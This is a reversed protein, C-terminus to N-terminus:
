FGTGQDGKFDEAFIPEVEGFTLGLMMHTPTGDEYTSYVSSGTYNVNVSKLACYKFKNLFPHARGKHMYTLEFIDPASLFFDGKSELKPASHKKLMLIMRRVQEAEEPSSPIIPFMFSFERLTPGDFLLEKNPNISKGAGRALLQKIDMSGGTISTVAKAASYSSALDRAAQSDKLFANKAYGMSTAIAELAETIGASQIVDKGGGVAIAEITNLDSESWNATNVSGIDNPISFYLCGLSTEGGTKVGGLFKGAAGTISGATGAREYKKITIKLWDQELSGDLPYRLVPISGGACDIGGTGTGPASGAAILSTTPDFASSVISSVKAASPLPPPSKLAAAGVSGLPPLAAATSWTTALASTGKLSYSPEAM